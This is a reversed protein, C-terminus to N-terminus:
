YLKIKNTTWCALTALMTPCTERHLLLRQSAGGGAQNCKAGCEPPHPEIVQVELLLMDIQIADMPHIHNCQSLDQWLNSPRFEIITNLKM